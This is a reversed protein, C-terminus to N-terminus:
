YNLTAISFPSKYHIKGNIAHHNEMAIYVNVLPYNSHHIVFKIPFIISFPPVQSLLRIYVALFSLLHYEFQGFEGRSQSSEIPFISCASLHLFQRPITKPMGWHDFITLQFQNIVRCYHGRALWVQCHFIGWSLPHHYELRGHRIVMLCTATPNVEILADAIRSDGSGCPWHGGSDISQSLVIHVPFWPKVDPPYIITTETCFNVEVSETFDSFM